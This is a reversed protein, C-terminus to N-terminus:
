AAQTVVPWHRALGEDPERLDCSGITFPTQMAHGLQARDISHDRWSLGGAFDFAAPDDELLCAEIEDPGLAGEELLRLGVALGLFGIGGDRALPQHLGQTAKFPLNRSAVEPLVRALTAASLANDGGCRVKLGVIPLEADGNAADIVAFVEDLRAQWAADDLKPEWYVQVEAGMLVYRSPMLSAATAEVSALSSHVELNKVDHPIKDLRGERNFSTIANGVKGSDDVPVGVVCIRVHRRHDFGAAELRETTVQELRDKTVVLDNDVLGPRALVAPLGAAEELMEDFGLEAPPFMGAYDFLGETIAELSKM